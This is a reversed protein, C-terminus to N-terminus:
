HRHKPQEEKGIAGGYAQAAAGTIQSQSDILFNGHTVVTQGPEIGSIIPVYRRLRKGAGDYTWGEPGIEVQRAAYGADGQDVYVVKREGTNIVATKPVALVEGTMVLARGDEPCTGPDNSVHDPHDPCVFKWRLKLASAAPGAEHGAPAVQKEVLVMGCEPCRGDAPAKGPEFVPHGPMGCTLVTRTAPQTTAGESTDTPELPMDCITCTRGPEDSTIWPHMPCAFRAKPAQDFGYIDALGVRLRATAAMGPKLRGDENPVEILVKVTRTQRHLYPYIFSVHGHVPQAPFADGTIEVPMGRRLWPLEYEYIDALVWLTSLDAIRYLDQGAKVHQGLLAKTEIVTGGIPAYLTLTTVAKGRRRISEIQGEELGLLRLKGETSIVTARATTRMVELDSDKLQEVAQLAQLYEEQASLLEPSYIEVLHDAHRRLPKGDIPCAGPKHFHKDPHDPCAYYVRVKTGTFDVYLREIWGSVRTSAAALKRENYDLIGVTRIERALKQYGTPETHVPILAKQRATLTLGAGKKVPTLTMKCVPCTGPEPSRVTPHMVCTWFAVDGEEAAVAQTTPATEPPTAPSGFRSVNVAIVYASAAAFAAVALGALAKLWTPWTKMKM